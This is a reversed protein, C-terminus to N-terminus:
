LDYWTQGSRGPKDVTDVEASLENAAEDGPILNLTRARRGASSAFPSSPRRYKTGPLAESPVNAQRPDSYYRGQDGAFASVPTWTELDLKPRKYATEMAYQARKMDETAESLQEETHCLRNELQSLQREASAWKTKANELQDKLLRVEHQTAEVSAELERMTKGSIMEVDLNKLWMRLTDVANAAPTRCLDDLSRFTDDASPVHSGDHHNRPLNSDRGDFTPSDTGGRLHVSGQSPGSGRHHFADLVLVRGPVTPTKHRVVHLGFTDDSAFSSRRSSALSDSAQASDTDGELKYFDPQEASEDTGSCERPRACADDRIESGVSVLSDTGPQWSHGPTM